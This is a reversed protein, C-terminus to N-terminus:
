RVRGGAARVDHAAAVAAQRDLRAGAAFVEAFREAGLAERIRAALEAEGRRIMPWAQLGVRRRLGDAAGALLAARDADGELWALRAFGALCLSVLQTSHAALSQDLGEDFLGRAEDLRGRMLALTGLQAHSTASLWSNGFREALDNGERLHRLADDYRGLITELSGLTLAASATGLLEDQGRFEELSASAERSAREFDGVMNSTWAMVLRVAAHLYPDEIVDLLPELRRRAALATPDDGVERATAAATWLLEARAQPDFSGASPLLREVWARVDGLHDWQSWFPWLVRFLHPLRAPDNALYWDV